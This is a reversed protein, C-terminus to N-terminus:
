VAEHRPAGGKDNGVAEGGDHTSVVNCTRKSFGQQVLGVPWREVTMDASWM